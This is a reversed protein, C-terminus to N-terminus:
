LLLVHDIYSNYKIKYLWTRTREPDSIKTKLLDASLTKVTNYHRREDSYM